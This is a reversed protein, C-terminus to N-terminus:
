RPRRRYLIGGAVAGFVAVGFGVHEEEGLADSSILKGGPLLLVNLPLMWLFAIGLWSIIKM